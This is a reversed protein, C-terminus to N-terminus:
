SFPVRVSNFGAKKIFKIDEPTVYNAQFENWFKQAAREGILQNFAEYIRQPSNVRKFEFMYGEPLLWNGVNIGKLFIPKGDPLIFEKGRVFVFKSQAPATLNFNALLLALGAFVIIKNKFLNM